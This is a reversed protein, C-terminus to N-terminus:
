PNEPNQADWPFTNNGWLVQDEIPIEGFVPSDERVEFGEESELVRRKSSLGAQQRFSEVFGRGGLALAKTWREQRQFPQHLAERILTEHNLQFEELSGMGSLSLMDKVDVLRYRKPPYYFEPYGGYDWEKPHNVMGARVMNLDIYVTCRMLHKGSEVATAHYRDEWFAGHRNKRQNYRQATQGAILQVSNM